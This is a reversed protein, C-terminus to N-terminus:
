KIQMTVQQKHRRQHLWMRFTKIPLPVPTYSTNFGQLLIHKNAGLEDSLVPFLM